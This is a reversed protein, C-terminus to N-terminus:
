SVSVGDAGVTVSKAPLGSTAPGAKVDGTTIDFKSGHCACNITGDQVSSVICGQHTCVASFAKFDGATPQTIVVKASDFIKGGGVPIDAAKALDKAAGVASSAANNVSQEADTGCATLAVGAVAIMGVSRMADRRGCCSMPALASDEATPQDNPNTDM